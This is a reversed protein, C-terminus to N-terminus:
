ASIQAAPASLQPLYMDLEHDLQTPKPSNWKPYPSCLTSEFTLLFLFDPRIELPAEGNTGLDVAVRTGPRRAM